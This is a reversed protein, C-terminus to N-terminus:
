RVLISRSNSCFAPSVSSDRLSRQDARSLLESTLLKRPSHGPLQFPRGNSLVKQSRLGVTSSSRRISWSPLRSVPTASANARRAGGFALRLAPVALHRALDGLRAAGSDIEPRDEGIHEAFLVAALCRGGAHELVAGLAEGALGGLVPQLVHPADAGVLLRQRM